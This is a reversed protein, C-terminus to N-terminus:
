QAFPYLEDFRQVAFQPMVLRGAGALRAAPDPIRFVQRFFEFVVKRVHLRVQVVEFM